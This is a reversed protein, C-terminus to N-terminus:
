RVPEPPIPPVRRPTRDLHPVAALLEGTANIEALRLHQELHDIRELAPSLLATIVEAVNLISHDSGEQDLLLEGFGLAVRVQNGILSLSERLHAAAAEDLATRTPGVEDDDSVVPSVRTAARGSAHRNQGTKSPDTVLEFGVGEAMEEGARTGARERKM